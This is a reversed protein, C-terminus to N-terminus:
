HSLITTASNENYSNKVETKPPNDESSELNKDEIEEIKLFNAVSLSLVM